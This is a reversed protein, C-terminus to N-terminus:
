YGSDIPIIAARMTAADTYGTNQNYQYAIQGFYEELHEDSTAALRSPDAHLAHRIWHLRPTTMANFMPQLDRTAPMILQSSDFLFKSCPNHEDRISGLVPEIQNGASYWLQIPQTDISETDPVHLKFGAVNNDVYSAAADEEPMDWFNEHDMWVRIAGEPPHDRSHEPAHPDYNV